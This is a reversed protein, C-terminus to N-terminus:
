RGAVLVLVESLKDIDFPKEIFDCGMNHLDRIFRETPRLGSSIVVKANPDMNIIQKFATEGDMGDMRLDLMVLDISDGRQRYLSVAEECNDFSIVDAGLEEVMLCVIQRLWIEDEALLLTLGELPVDDSCRLNHNM